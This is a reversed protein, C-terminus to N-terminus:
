KRQSADRSKRKRKALEIEAIVPETRERTRRELESTLLRVFFPAVAALVIAVVWIPFVIDKQWM